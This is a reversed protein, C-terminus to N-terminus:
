TKSDNGKMTRTSSGYSARMTKRRKLHREINRKIREITLGFADEISSGVDFVALDTSAHLNVNISCGILAMTHGDDVHTFKVECRHLINSFRSLTLGVRADILKVEDATPTIGKNNILYHM